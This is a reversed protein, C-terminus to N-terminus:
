VAVGMHHDRPILRHQLDAILVDEPDRRGLFVQQKADPILVHM